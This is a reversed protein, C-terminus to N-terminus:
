TGKFQVRGGKKWGSLSKGGVEVTIFGRGTSLFEHLALLFLHMASARQGRPPPEPRQTSLDKM